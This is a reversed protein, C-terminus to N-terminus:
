KIETIATIVYKDVVQALIQIPRSLTNRFKFDQIGFSVTADKKDPVYTVKMSHPHREVVKLHSSIVANYLTSSVQCIGGGIGPMVKKGAFVPAEKFGLEATRPGVTQNFSFTQGPYLIKGNIKQCALIVNNTRNPLDSPLTTYYGGILKPEPFLLNFVPVEDFTGWLPIDDPIYVPVSGNEELFSKSMIYLTEKYPDYSLTFGTEEAIFRLPIYFGNEIILPVSYLLIEKDNKLAYINGIRLALSINENKLWVQNNDAIDASLQFLAAADETTIMSRGDTNIFVPKQTIVPQGDLIINIKNLFSSSDYSSDNYIGQEGPYSPSYNEETIYDNGAILDSEAAIINPSGLFILWILTSILFMAASKIKKM